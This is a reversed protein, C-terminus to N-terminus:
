WRGYPPTAPPDENLLVRVEPYGTGLVEAVEPAPSQPSRIDFDSSFREHDTLM